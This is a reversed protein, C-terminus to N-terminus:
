SLRDYVAKDDRGRAPWAIEGIKTKINHDGGANQGYRSM